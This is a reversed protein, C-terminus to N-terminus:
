ILKGIQNLLLDFFAKQNIDYVWFCNKPKETINWFDVSTCGLTLNSKTEISVNVHKGIFLDKNLLYAITCPDHLPGGDSGYKQEDFRNYYRLMSAVLSGSKNGLNELKNTIENSTIVKHTVDLPMAVLPRGANFVIDAADPDVYVNFEASPTTNGGERMAGGMIVIESIKKLINKDKKIAKAINTLPGTPVLTISNDEASHLTEIIFDVAHQKQLPINPNFIPAGDIGELGHVYEATVLDREIPKECGAYIKISDKNALETIIRANRQTKNLPVNGAVTTIGLINLKEPASFALLLMIADDQGPDCDIIINKQEM